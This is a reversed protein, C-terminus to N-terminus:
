RAIISVGTIWSQFQSGYGYIEISDIVAVSQGTNASKLVFKDPALQDTSKWVGQPMETSLKSDPKDGPSHIYFSQVWEHQDRQADSYLVKITLPYLNDQPGGAPSSQSVVKVTASLKISSLFDAPQNIEQRIGVRGLREGSSVRDMVAASLAVGQLTETLVRVTGISDGTEDLEASQDRIPLWAATDLGGSEQQEAGSTPPETFSGNHILEEGVAVPGIPVEVGSVSAMSGAGLSIKKGNSQFTASGYDVVANTSRQDGSGEARVRVRSGTDFTIVANGTAVTYSASSYGGLGATSIIATGSDLTFAAEKLNQFFQSIRLSDIKLTTSFSTQITSGDFLQLFAESDSGTSVTDGERLTTKGTVLEQFLTLHRVVTLQSGHSLQLDATKPNTVTSLYNAVGAGAFACLTLFLLSSLLLMIWVRRARQAHPTNVVQTRTAASM